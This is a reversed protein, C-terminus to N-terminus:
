ASKKTIAHTAARQARGQSVKLKKLHEPYSYAPGSKTHIRVVSCDPYLNEIIGEAEAYVGSTVRVPEGIELNEM